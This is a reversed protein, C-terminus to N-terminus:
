GGSYHDFGVIRRDLTNRYLTMCARQEELLSQDVFGVSDWKNSRMFNELKTLRGDLEEREDIVRQQWDPKESM